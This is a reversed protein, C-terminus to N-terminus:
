GEESENEDERHWLMWAISQFSAEEPVLCKRGYACATKAGICVASSTGLSAGADFFARVGAASGFITYDSDSKFDRLLETRVSVDYIACDRTDVGADELRRAMAKDGNSARLLYVKRGASRKVLAEALSETTFSQPVIDAEFGHKLLESATGNGIVAFATDHLSRLDRGFKKFFVDVGNASTFCAISGPEFDQPVDRPVVVMHALTKVSFGADELVRRGRQVFSETGTVTVSKRRQGALEMAATKGIFIIGPTEAGSARDVIDGLTGRVLTEDPSFARSMVAAPTDPSAGGDLLEKVIRNLESIGMLFIRSGDVAGFSKVSTNDSGDGATHGTIVSFSRADGRNTVPIGFHEPVAIATSIGPIVEYSIGAKKLALAEEAGRGFVFPDGGKLRVVTRGSEALNILLDNIQEQSLATRGLRKGAYILEAAPSSYSLVSRDILDDFVVADARELVSVARLTLYEASPGAGTIYVRGRVKQKAQLKLGNAPLASSPASLVKRIHEPSLDKDMDAVKGKFTHRRGEYMAPMEYRDGYIYCRAAAPATCDAGLGRIVAREATFRLFVEPDNICGLLLANDSEDKKRCEVAIIGQTAAPICESDYFTRQRLDSIDAGLRDIGAEAVVIADVERDRLKKLRSDINGRISVFEADPYLKKLQCIRRLSGTGIRKPKEAVSLLMDRDSGADPTAAIMLGDSLESPLDKGSHVAIDADYDLLRQEVDKVFVGRGGIRSLASKRDRDGSTKVCEVVVTMGLEELKKKVIGTQALALASGRTAIIVEHPMLANFLRAKMQDATEFSTLCHELLRTFFYKRTKDSTLYMKAESRASKMYAAIEGTKEPLMQQTKERLYKAFAPSSAGTSIAVTVDGQKVISPFIFDCSEEDDVVNVPINKGRCTAGIVRNVDRDDTAAICIDFDDAASPEWRERITRAGATDFSFEPALLTIRDTFLRLKEFKERAVKGGGVILIDKGSIQVFFPFYSM